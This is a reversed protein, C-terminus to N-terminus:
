KKTTKTTKKKATAKKVPKKTQKESPIYKTIFTYVRSKKITSCLLQVKQSFWQKWVAPNFIGSLRKRLSLKTAKNNKTTKKM